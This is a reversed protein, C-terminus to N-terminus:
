SQKGGLKNNEDSIEKHAIKRTSYFGMMSFVLLSIFIIGILNILFMQFAGSFIQYNLTAIGISIAALPPVLAVAIAVGPLAASLKPKVFAFTGALGSLVAVYFYAIHPNFSQIIETQLNNYPFLIFAIFTNLALVLAMSKGLVIVSRKILDGDSMSVGLALSLIPALLPTVLMSGIVVAMNNILLGITALMGSVVLMFFFDMSPSSSDIIKKVAGSKDQDSLYFLSPISSAM